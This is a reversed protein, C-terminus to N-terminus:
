TSVLVVGDVKDKKMDAAMERGLQQMVAMAGTTGPTVYYYSYLERIVRDQELQRLADLPVGYNPNNDMSETYYGGHVTQWQGKVMTSQGDISYKRWQTNRAIKFSDPNGRPVVGSTSVIAIRSEKLNALQAAPTLTEATILPVESVYPEGNMKALLMTIAREIGPRDDQVVQRVGVPLFGEEAAPRVPTGAALKGSFNAMAQLAPQMGSVTVTTPFLFVKMSMQKNARYVDVGPNEENMASICPIGLERAIVNCAEVCAVGYRGAAFAPGAVFQHPQWKRAAELIERAARDSNQNFYNDGAYITGVIRSSSPLLNQLAKGPGAPGDVAGVPLDAKEEGGQGAFFHNIYHVIKVENM